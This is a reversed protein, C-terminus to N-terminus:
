PGRLDWRRNARGSRLMGVSVSSGVACRKGYRLHDGVGLHLAELVEGDRGGVTDFDNLFGAYRLGDFTRITGDDADLVFVPVLGFSSVSGDDEGCSAVSGVEGEIRKELLVSWFVVVKRGRVAIVTSSIPMLKRQTDTRTRNVQLLHLHM